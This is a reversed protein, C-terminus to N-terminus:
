INMGDRKMHRYVDEYQQSEKLTAVIQEAFHYDGERNPVIEYVRREFEAHGIPNASSLSQHVEDMLSFIADIQQKTLDCELTYHTFPHKDEDAISVLRRIKDDLHALRKELDTIREESM